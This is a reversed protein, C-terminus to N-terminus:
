NEVKLNIEEMLIDPVDWGKRDMLERTARRFFLRVEVKIYEENAILFTFISKDTEFPMLRNDSLIRTPNWYAGTPFVETWLEQLIKMYIKGPLSSYYGLAPDGEGGYFPITEGSSQSLRNGNEDSVEVLLIVQRLPFETPVAHGTQDNIIEVTVELESGVIKTKATMSVANQMLEEEMFGTMNHDFIKEPDRFLGGKEPYVFYDYDVPPMHCAQCTKGSDPDSYSSELWEGYSNYVITDWFAGFHCPACYASEEILPLYSVRRNVDDFNGFFLQEGEDPRFLQMSLIGPMNLNPLLTKPDLTVDGIKHCFECFVGEKEVGTAELPNADYEMGPYAAQVPVHCTACNGATDPFDLKYGPGYYPQNPDPLLPFSGYDRTSGYRTLPSQNGEVDTGSYMTLFRPNVASQSHADEIWEYYSPMCHSCSLSGPDGEHSFWDYDPNDTTYYKSLQITVPECSPIAEVWGVYHEEAWATIIVSEISNIDHLEFYGNENSSTFIESAQVRVIASISPGEENKVYGFIEDNQCPAKKNACSYLLFSSVFCTFLITTIKKRSPM